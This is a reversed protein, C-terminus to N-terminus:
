LVIKAMSTSQESISRIDIESFMLEKWRETETLWLKLSRWLKARYFLVLRAEEVNQFHEMKDIELTTQYDMVKGHEGDIENFKAEIEDLKRIKADLKIMMTASNAYRDGEQWDIELFEQDQIVQQFQEVQENIIPIKNKTITKMHDKKSHTKDKTDYIATTLTNTLMYAEGINITQRDERTLLDFGDLLQYLQDCLELTEKIQDFHDEVYQM